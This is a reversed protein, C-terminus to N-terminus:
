RGLDGNERGEIRLQIQQGGGFFNGPYAVSSVAPSSSTFVSVLETEWTNFFIAKTIWLFISTFNFKNWIDSNVSHTVLQYESLASRPTHMVLYVCVSLPTTQATNNDAKTNNTNTNTNTAVSVHRFKAQSHFHVSNSWCLTYMCVYKCVCMYIYVYTCMCVYTCVYM